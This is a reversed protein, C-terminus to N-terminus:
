NWDSFDIDFNKCITSRDMTMTYDILFNEVGWVNDAEEMNGTDFFYEEKKFKLYEICKERTSFSAIFWHFKGDNTKRLITWTRWNYWEIM